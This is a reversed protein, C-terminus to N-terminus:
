SGKPDRRFNENGAAGFVKGLGRSDQGNLSNRRRIEELPSKIASYERPKKEIKPSHPPKEFTRPENGPRDLHALAENITQRGLRPKPNQLRFIREEEESLVGSPAVANAQGKSIADLLSRPHEGSKDAM